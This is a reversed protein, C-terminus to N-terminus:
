AEVQAGKALFGERGLRRRRGPTASDAAPLSEAPGPAGPKAAVQGPAPGPACIHARVELPRWASPCRPGAHTRACSPASHPFATGRARGNQHGSTTHFM